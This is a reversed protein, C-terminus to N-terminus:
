NNTESLNPIFVIITKDMLSEEAKGPEDIQHDEIQM